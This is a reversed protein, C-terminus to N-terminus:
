KKGFVIGLFPAHDSFLESPDHALSLETDQPKIPQVRGKLNESILLYDLEREQLSEAYRNMETPQNTRILELKNKEAEQLYSFINMEKIKSSINPNEFYEPFTNFDGQIVIKAQPHKEQLDPIITDHLYKIAKFCGGEMAGEVNQNYTQREDETANEPIELKYGPIHASIFIFEEKIKKDKAFVATTDENAYYYEKCDKFRSNDIAIATDSKGNPHAIAYNGKSLEDLVAQNSSYVEQLTIIAPREPSSIVKQFFNVALRDKINQLQRELPDKSTPSNIKGANPIPPFIKSFKKISETAQDFISKRLLKPLKTKYNDSLYRYLTPHLLKFLKASHKNKMNKNLLAFFQQSNEKILNTIQEDDLRDEVIDLGKDFILTILKTDKTDIPLEKENVYLRIIQKEIKSKEETPLDDDKFKILLNHLIGESFFNMVPQNKYNDNLYRFLTPYIQKTM